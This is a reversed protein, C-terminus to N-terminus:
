IQLTKRKLIKSSSVQSNTRELNQKTWNALYSSISQVMNVPRSVCFEKGECRTHKDESAKKKWLEQAVPLYQYHWVINESNLQLCGPRYSPGTSVTRWPVRLRAQVANLLILELLCYVKSAIVPSSNSFLNDKKFVPIIQFYTAKWPQGFLLRVKVFPQHPTRLRTVHHNSRIKVRAVLIGGLM